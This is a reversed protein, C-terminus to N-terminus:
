DLFVKPVMSDITQLEMVFPVPEGKFKTKDLIVAYLIAVIIGTFYLGVMVLAANHSFFAAAFFAYIPIKSFM